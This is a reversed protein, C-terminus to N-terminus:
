FRDQHIMDRVVGAATLFSTAAEMLAPPGCLLYDADQRVFKYLHDLPRGRTALGHIIEDAFIRIEFNPHQQSLQHLEPWFPVEDDSKCGYLLITPAQSGNQLRDEAIAKLPTIGSGGAVCVIPRERPPVYFRGGPTSCTFETGVSWGLLHQRIRPDDLILCLEFHGDARRASAISYYRDFNGEEDVFSVKTFQGPGHIFDPSCQAQVVAYRRGVYDIRRVVAHFLRASEQM